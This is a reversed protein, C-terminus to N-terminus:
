LASHAGSVDQIRFNLRFRAGKEGNDLTSSGELQQTLTQVLQMGLSAASGPNFGAPFGGGDDQIEVNLQGNRNTVKVCICGEKRNRFAHKYANTIVENILLSLPVAQNINIRVAEIERRVQIDVDSEMVSKVYDLLGNITQDIDVYTFNENQYLEEHILAMSRIRTTSDLLQERVSQSETEMAQLQMLSSVIALNNKVRHHIEQLLTEKEHLSQELAQEKEIIASNTFIQAM